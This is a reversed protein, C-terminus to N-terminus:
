RVQIQIGSFTGRLLFKNSFNRDLTDYGPKVNLFKYFDMAPTYSLNIITLLSYIRGTVKKGKPKKLNIECTTDLETSSIEIIGCQFIFNEEEDEFRMNEKLTKAFSYLPAAKTTSPRISETILVNIGGDETETITTEIGAALVSTSLFLCFLLLFHM